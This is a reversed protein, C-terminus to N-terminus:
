QSESVHRAGQKQHGKGAKIAPPAPARGRRGMLLGDLDSIQQMALAVARSSVSATKHSNMSRSLRYPRGTPPAVIGVYCSGACAVRCM